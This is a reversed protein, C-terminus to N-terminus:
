TTTATRLPKWMDMVALRMGAAKRKGLWDYFQALSAESRDEGGLWIAQRRILASVVIRSPHGKRLAIEDLGIGQPGPTGRKALQAARDQKELAKGTDWDLPLEEAMEKITTARCRKGVSHAFRKTYFPTAALFDLRERKVTGCSKCQV